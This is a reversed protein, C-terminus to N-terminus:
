PCPAESGLIMMFGGLMFVGASIGTLSFFLDDDTEIASLGCFLMGVFGIACVSLGGLTLFM